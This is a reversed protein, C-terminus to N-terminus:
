PQAATPAAAPLAPPAGLQRDLALNLTLVNVVPEGLLGLTRGEIKSEALERIREPAVGRAKAVRAVQWLAAAPSVHPDLGSGSASVLEAPVDGLADPNESRLRALDAEVRARLKASTPGLNSGSSNAADYGAGAASPRGQFYEPRAFTQGILESGVVRGTEDHVLSGDAQHPFLAKGAGTVALPYLLGTLVLTVLSIRLAILLTKM